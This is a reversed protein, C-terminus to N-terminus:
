VQQRLPSAELAKLMARSKTREKAERFYKVPQLQSWTMLYAGKWTPRYANAAPDLYLRGHKVQSDFDEIMRQEQAAIETGPPPLSEVPNGALLAMRRCHIAYLAHPNQIEPLRLTQQEPGYHFAGPPKNNSTQLVTGQQGGSSQYRTIFEVYSTKLKAGDASVVYFASVLAKVNSARNMFLTIFPFVNPASNGWSLHGVTEFGESELAQQCAWLYQAAQPPLTALDVPQFQPSANLKQNFRILVPAVLYMFAAFGVVWILLGQM